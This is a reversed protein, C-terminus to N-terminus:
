IVLRDELWIEDRVPIGPSIGTICFGYRQNAHELCIRQGTHRDRYQPTGSCFACSM